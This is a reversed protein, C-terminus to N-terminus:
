QGATNIMRTTVEERLRALEGSAAMDQIVKGARRILEAHREHLFHYLPIHELVPSLPRITKELHRRRIVLLGSFEDSVAVEVRDNALIEMLQDMSTVAEVRPMGHTGRESSGVGRVIGISYPALSSWGEVRFDLRKVFAVPEIYNISPHVALLSPYERGVDLIRQVEGDVRGQSSEVLARKAPMDVFEVAMDLRRYVVELIASGVLQDPINEVRALRLSARPQAGAAGLMPLVAGIACGGLWRRRGTVSALLTAHRASCADSRPSVPSTMARANSSDRGGLSASTKLAGDHRQDIGGHHGDLWM